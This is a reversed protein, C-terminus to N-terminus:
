GGGSGALSGEDQPRQGRAKKLDRKARTKDMGRFQGDKDLLIRVARLEGTLDDMAEAPFVVRGMLNTLTKQQDSIRVLAAVLESMRRDWLERARGIANVLQGTLKEMDKSKRARARMKKRAM